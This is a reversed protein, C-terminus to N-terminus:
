ASSGTPESADGGGPGFQGFRHFRHRFRPPREGNEIGELIEDAEEQTIRGREVADALKEAVGALREARLTEMASTIETENIGLEDALASIFAARREEIVEPTIEDPRDGLSERAAEVAAHLTEVDIGLAEALAAGRMRHHRVGASVEGDQTEGEIQQAVVPESLTTSASGGGSAMAFAPVAIAGAAAVSALALSIGRKSFM